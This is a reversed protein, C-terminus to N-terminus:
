GSFKFRKIKNISKKKTYISTTLVTEVTGSMTLMAISSKKTLKVTADHSTMLSKVARELQDLQLQFGINNDNMSECLFDGFM